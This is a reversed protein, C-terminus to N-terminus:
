VTSIFRSQNTHRLRCYLKIVKRAVKYKHEVKVKQSIWKMDIMSDRRKNETATLLWFNLRCNSCSMQWSVFLLLCFSTPILLFVAHRCIWQVKFWTTFLSPWLTPPNEALLVCPSNATIITPSYTITRNNMKLVSLFKKVKWFENFNPFSSLAHRKLPQKLNYNLELTKKREKDALTIVCCLSICLPLYFYDFFSKLPSLTFYFNIHWLTWIHAFIVLIKKETCCCSSIFRCLCYLCCCCCSSCCLLLFLFRFSFSFMGFHLHAAALCIWACVSVWVWLRVRVGVCAAIFTVFTLRITFFFQCCSSAVYHHM